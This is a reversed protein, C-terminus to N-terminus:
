SQDVGGAGSFRKNIVQLVVTGENRRIDPFLALGLLYIPPAILLVVIMPIGDIMVVPLFFAGTGVVAAILAPIIGAARVHSRLRIYLALGLASETLVVAVAAGHAGFFPILAINAVANFLGALIWARSWFREEDCVQCFASLLEQLLHTVATIGLIKLVTSSARFQGGFVLQTLDNAVLAIGACAPIGFLLALRLSRSFFAQFEQQDGERLQVAAPMVAAPIRNILLHLMFVVRFAANYIGAVVTGLLPVLLIIDARTAVRRVVTVLAFPSAAVLKRIVFDLHLSLKLPGFKRQVTRYCVFVHLAAIAPLTAVALEISAGSWIVLSGIAATFFRQSIEIASLLYASGQSIAIASLGAILGELIQFLGLLVILIALRDDMPVLLAVTVTLAFAVVSLALRLAVVSGAYGRFRDGARRIERISLEFLGFNAICWSFGTVAMAFGYEGLLSAGYARSLAVFFVFQFVDSIARGGTLVGVNKIASLGLKM